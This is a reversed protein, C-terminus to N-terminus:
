SKVKVFYIKDIRCDITGGFAFYNNSAIRVIPVALWSNSMSVSGLSYPSGNGPSYTDKATKGGFTLPQNSTTTTLSVIHFLVYDYDGQVVHNETTVVCRGNGGSTNYIRLYGDTAMTSINSRGNAETNASVGGFSESTDLVGDEFWKFVKSGKIGAGGNPLMNIVAM